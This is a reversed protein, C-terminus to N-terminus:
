TKFITKLSSTEPESLRLPELFQVDIRPGIYPIPRFSTRNPWVWTRNQRFSTRRNPLPTRDPGFFHGSACTHLVANQGISRSRLVAIQGVSAPARFADMTTLKQGLAVSQLVPFQGSHLVAKQGSPAFYPFPRFSTRRIPWSLHNLLRCRPSAARPGSHHVANQGAQIKALRSPGIYPTKALFTM